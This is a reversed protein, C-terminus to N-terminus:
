QLVALLENDIKNIEDKNYGRNDVLHQVLRGHYTDNVFQLVDNIYDVQENTLEYKPM